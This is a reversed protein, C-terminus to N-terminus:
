LHKVAGYLEIYMKITVGIYLVIFSVPNLQDKAALYVRRPDPPLIASIALAISLDREGSSGGGSIEQSKGKGIRVSKKFQESFSARAPHFVVIDTAFETQLDKHSHVRKGFEKDGGSVLKENFLGAMDFVRSRVALAATPSYNENNFYYESPLGFKRDYWGWYGDKGEPTYLEISYGLYDIDTDNFYADITHLWNSPVTMDADIFVLVDGNANKVGTNRAAYSSQVEEEVAPQITEPYQDAWATIVTYTDDTSNNDVPIIEYNSYEQKVISSITDDLGDADNYVPIIISIKTMNDDQTNDRPSKYNM